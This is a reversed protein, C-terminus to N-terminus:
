EEDFYWELGPLGNLIEALYEHTREEEWDCENMLVTGVDSLAETHSDSWGGNELAHEKIKIAAQMLSLENRSKTEKIEQREQEVREPDIRVVLSMAITAVKIKVWVSSALLLNALRPFLWDSVMAYLVCLRTVLNYLFSRM